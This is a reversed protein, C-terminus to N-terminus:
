AVDSSAFMGMEGCDRCRWFEVDPGDESTDFSESGLLDLFRNVQDFGLADCADGIAFWEVSGSCESCTPRVFRAFGSPVYEEPGAARRERRNM